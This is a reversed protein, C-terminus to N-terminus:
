NRFEVAASHFQHPFDFNGILSLLPKIKGTLSKGRDFIAAQAVSPALLQNRSIRAFQTNEETRNDRALDTVYCDVKM